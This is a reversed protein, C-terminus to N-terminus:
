ERSYLRVIYEGYSLDTKKQATATSDNVTIRIVDSRNDVSIAKTVITIYSATVTNKTIYGHTITTNNNIVTAGFYYEEIGKPIYIGESAAYGQFYMYLDKKAKIKDSETIEFYNSWDTTTVLTFDGPIDTKMAVTQGDVSITGSTIDIGTGATLKEQITTTDVSIANESSISIGTGATYETGGAGEVIKEVQKVNFAKKGNGLRQADTKRANTVM